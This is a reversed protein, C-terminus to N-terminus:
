ASNRFMIPNEIKKWLDEAYRGTMGSIFDIIKTQKNEIIEGNSILMRKLLERENEPLVLLERSDTENIEKLFKNISSIIKKCHLDQSYILNDKLIMDKYIYSKLDSINKHFHNDTDYPSYLISLNEDTEEEGKTKLLFEYFSKPLDDIVSNSGTEINHKHSELFNDIVHFVHHLSKKLIEDSLNKIKRYDNKLDSLKVGSNNFFEEAIGGFNEEGFLVAIKEELEEFKSFQELSLRYYVFDILDGCIYSIDDAAEMFLSSPTRYFCTEQNESENVLGLEKLIKKLAEEESPYSCEALKNKKLCSATLPSSVNMKEKFPNNLFIRIVQKNDDFQYLKKNRRQELSKLIETGRHGFPPHGLDHALCAAFTLEELEEKFHNKIYKAKRGKIHKSMKENFQKVFYRAIQRGINGAELSHTMRNRIHDNTELAYIQTKHALRKFALSHTIIGSDIHFASRYEEPEINDKRVPNMWKPIKMSNKTLAIEKRAYEM